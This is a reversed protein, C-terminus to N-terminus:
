QDALIKETIAMAVALTRNPCGLKALVNSVLRKVGHQSISLQRAIQKNSLGDVLLKLVQRERPTLNPSPSPAGLAGARARALLRRAMLAPVATDGDAVDTLVEALSESSLEHQVIFGNSPITAIMDLREEQSQDLLLLVKTGRRAAEQAVKEVVEVGSDDFGLILMDPGADPAFSTIRATSDWTWIDIEKVMPLTNLMSALGQRMIESSVLIAVRLKSFQDTQGEESSREPVASM